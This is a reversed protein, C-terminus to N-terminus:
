QRLYFLNTEIELLCDATGRAPYHLIALNILEISKLLLGHLIFVTQDM